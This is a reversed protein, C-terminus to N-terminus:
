PEFAGSAYGTDKWKETWLYEVTDDIQVIIGIGILKETLVEIQSKMDINGNDWTIKFGRKAGFRDILMNFIWRENDNLQAEAMFGMIDATVRLSKLFFDTDTM